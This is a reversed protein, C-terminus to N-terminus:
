EKALAILEIIEQRCPGCWTAWFNLIVVKGRWDTSAIAHGELDRVSFSPVPTPNKVFRIVRPSNLQADGLGALRAGAPVPLGSSVCLLAAAALSFFGSRTM